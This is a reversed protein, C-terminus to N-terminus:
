RGSHAGAAALGPDLRAAGHDGGGGEVARQGPPAERDLAVPRPLEQVHEWTTPDVLAGLASPEGSWLRGVDFPNTLIEAVYKLALGTAAGSLSVLSLCAGEAVARLVPLRGM